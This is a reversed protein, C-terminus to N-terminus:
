LNLSKIFRRGAASKLYKEHRIANERKEFEKSYVIKWPGRSSTYRSKGKNHQDLREQLFETHGKYLSNNKLSQIIYTFYMFLIFGWKNHPKQVRPPVQVRVFWLGSSKLDLADVM